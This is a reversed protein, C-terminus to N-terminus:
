AMKSNFILWATTIKGAVAFNWYITWTATWWSGRERMGVTICKTYCFTFLHFNITISRSYVSSLITGQYRSSSCFWGFKNLQWWIVVMRGIAKNIHKHFSYNIDRFHAQIVLRWGDLLIDFMEDRFAFRLLTCEYIGTNENYYEYQMM